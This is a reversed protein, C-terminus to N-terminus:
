DNSATGRDAAQLEDEDEMRAGAELRARLGGGSRQRRHELRATIAGSMADRQSALLVYSLLMSVAFALVWLFLGGLGVAFHLVILSVVFLLIRASTYVLTANTTRM